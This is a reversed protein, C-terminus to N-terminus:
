DFQEGFSLRQLKQFRGPWVVGAISQNFGYGLTLSQLFSPLRVAALDAQLSTNLVLKKIRNPWVVSELNVASVVGRLEGSESWAWVEIAESEVLGKM